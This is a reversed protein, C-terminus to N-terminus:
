PRRGDPVRQDENIFPRRYLAELEELTTALPDEIVSDRNLSRMAWVVVGVSGVCLLTMGFVYWGLPNNM